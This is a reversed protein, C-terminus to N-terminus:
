ARGEKGVRREESRTAAALRSSRRQVRYRGGPHGIALGSQRAPSGAAVARRPECAARGAFAYDTLSYTAAAGDGVAAARHSRGTSADRHAHAGHAGDYRSPEAATRRSRPEAHVSPQCAGLGGPRGDWIWRADRMVGAMATM